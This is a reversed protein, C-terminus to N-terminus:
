DEDIEEIDDESLTIEETEYESPKFTIEMNLNKVNSEIDPVAVALFPFHIERNKIIKRRAWITFVYFITSIIASFLASLGIAKGSIMPIGAAHFAMLSVAFNSIFTYIVVGELVM